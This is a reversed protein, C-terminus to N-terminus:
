WRKREERAIIKFNKADRERLAGPLSLPEKRKKKGRQFWAKEEFTKGKENRFFNCHGTRERKKKKGDGLITGGDHPPRGRSWYSSM